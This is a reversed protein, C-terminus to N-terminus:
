EVHHFHSFDVELMNDERVTLIDVFRADIAVEDITYSYRAHIMQGFTGDVGNMSIIMEAQDEEWDEPSLGYLPSEEDIVHMVTWSLAFMSTRRRKLPLTYFRRFREGESTTEFRVFSVDVTADVIQNGRLNAMRFMLTREDNFETIVARDSFLVRATPRSFKAFVLGTSLATIVVGLFAEISVLLDAYLTKPYLAGYGITAITQISFFFHDSFSNPDAGHICDGGLMFLIAFLVNVGGYIAVLLLWFYRWSLKILWHYIDNWFARSIGKRVVNFEGREGVFRYTM